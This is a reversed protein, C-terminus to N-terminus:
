GRSGGRASAAPVAGFRRERGRFEELAGALGAGGFDPWLCPTFVLEAYACEWLLFDSLRQEGGTRILLDVPPVPHDCNLARALLGGFAARSLGPHPTARVGTPAPGGPPASGAPGPPAWGATLMGAAELIADRASYDVALHLDLVQGGRTRGEASEIATRLPLGIRDRRGIVRVRVGDRECREAQSLLHRRFLDMLTKVEPAPRQWNDQSFAYLTLTRVGQVVAAEVVKRVAAAGARHGASRPLGRSQAWRGNGDMIVAVHLGTPAPPDLPLLGVRSHSTSQIM